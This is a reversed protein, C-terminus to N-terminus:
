KQNFYTKKEAEILEIETVQDNVFGTHDAQSMVLNHWCRLTTSTTTFRVSIHQILTLM